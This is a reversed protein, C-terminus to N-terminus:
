RRAAERARALAAPGARQAVLVHVVAGARRAAVAGGAAVPQVAERALARGAPGSKCAGFTRM